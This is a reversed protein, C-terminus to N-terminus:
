ESKSANVKREKKEYEESMLYNILQKRNGSFELETKFRRLDKLFAVAGTLACWVLICLLITLIFKLFIIM